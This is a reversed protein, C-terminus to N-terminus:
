GQERPTKSAQIYSLAEFIVKAALIATVGTDYHPVVEVLDIGTVRDDCINQLLDLLMFISIGEPEPNGVAPAYSPDLVDVDITVHVRVADELTKKLSTLTQSTQNRLDHSTFYKLGEKRAYELEEGCVARVGTLVVKDTGREECIRRMFTAHSVVSGMYVDRIDMHADLSLVTVDGDYARVTGLSVTHEGGLVVPFKGKEHIEEVVLSVRRLTEDVGMSVDLDGVDCLKMREVDIGSRFSYTEINLSAERITKPAFRSGPRYTSTGDYPVGLVIFPAQDFVTQFGSFAHQASTYLNLYSM